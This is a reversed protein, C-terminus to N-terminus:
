PLNPLLARCSGRDRTAPQRPPRALGQGDIEWRGAFALLMPPPAEHGAEPLRPSPLLTLEGACDYPGLVWPPGIRTHDVVSPLGYWTEAFVLREGDIWGLYVQTPMESEPGRVSALLVPGLKDTVGSLECWQLEVGCAEPALGRALVSPLEFEDVRARSVVALEGAEGREIVVGCSQVEDTPELLALAQASGPACVLRGREVHSPDTPEVEHQDAHQRQLCATLVVLSLAGVRHREAM